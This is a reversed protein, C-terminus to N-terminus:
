EANEAVDSEGEDKEEEPNESGGMNVNLGASKIEGFFMEDWISELSENGTLEVAIAKNEQHLVIMSQLIAQLYRQIM